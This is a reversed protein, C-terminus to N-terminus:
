GPAADGTAGAVASHPEVNRAAAQWIGKIRQMYAELTYRETHERLGQAGLTCRLEADDMLRTLAAVLADLDRVPVLLGNREHGVVDPIANVPTAVVAIGYSFAELIAMPLGESLSPLVFIDTSELLRQIAAQDLWGPIAVRDALGLAKVQARAKEVEGDGAITARWDARPGLRGLAEILQTTNKRPGLLGLSTLQLTRGPTLPNPNRRRSPTANYLLHVKAEVDPLRATVMDAFERGLVIIGASHELFRDVAAAIRPSAQNWFPGFKGAHIHVIYPVALWRALQALIMKRYASGHAAVNIHLVDVRRVMALRAFRALAFAFVFAGIGRGWRWKTILPTLEVGLRRDAHTAATVLDTLRDMGGTGTPGHPTTWVVRLPRSGADQQSARDSPRAAAPTDAQV